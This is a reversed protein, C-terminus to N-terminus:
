KNELFLMLEKYLRSTPLGIINNYSGEIRSIKTHGIWDQIGYSGAKDIPNCLDFYYNAETESINAFYVQSLEIFGYERDKHMLYVGTYVEHASGSLKLLTAIAEAKDKPKGYITDNHVVVTDATILIENEALQGKHAYAKKRAIYLAVDEAPIHSEVLEDVEITRKIFPLKANSLLESRRPSNSGLVLQYGKLDM